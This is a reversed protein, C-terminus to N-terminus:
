GIAQRVDGRQILTDVIEHRYEIRRPAFPGHEEPVGVRAWGADRGRYTVGIADAV